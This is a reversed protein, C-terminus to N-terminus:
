MQDTDLFCNLCNQNPRPRSILFSIRVNGNTIQFFLALQDTFVITRISLVTLWLWIKSDTLCLISSKSRWLTVSKATVTIQDWDDKMDVMSDSMFKNLRYQSSFSSFVIQQLQHSPHLHQSHIINGRVLCDAQPFILLQGQKKCARQTVWTGRKPHTFRHKLATDSGPQFPLEGANNWGSLSDSSVVQVFILGPRHRWRHKWETQQVVHLMIYTAHFSPCIQQVWTDASVAATDPSETVRYSKVWSPRCKSLYARLKHLM